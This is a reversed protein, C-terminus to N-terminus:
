KKEGKPNLSRRSLQNARFNHKRRVWTIECHDFRTLLMLCQKHYIELSEGVNQYGNVQDIVVKCDGKIHIRKIKLASATKLLEILAKYEIEVSTGFDVPRFAKCIINRKSAHIVFGITSRKDEPRTSGDFAADYVKAEM